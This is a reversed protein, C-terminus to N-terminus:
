KFFRDGIKRVDTCTAVGGHNVYLSNSHADRIVCAGMGIVTNSGIHVGQKVSASMGVMSMEEIEVNGGLIAGPAVFVFDGLVCDHEIVAQTNIVLHNGLHSSANIAVQPMIVTGKGIKVNSGLVVSPHISTVFEFHSNKIIIDNVVNSRALNDGIAVIGKGIKLGEDFSIIKYKDNWLTGVSFKEDVIGVIECKGEAWVLDAIVKAHGGGGFLVITAKM